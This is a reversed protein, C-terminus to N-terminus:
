CTIHVIAGVRKGQDVLQNFRAAAERSPLRLLELGSDRAYDRTKYSLRARSFAGLGVIATEAEKLEEIEEKSISHAGM